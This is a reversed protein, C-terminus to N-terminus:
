NLVPYSTGAQFRYDTSLSPHASNFVVIAQNMADVLTSSSLDALTKKGCNIATSAMGVSAPNSDSVDALAFVGNGHPKEGGVGISGGGPLQGVNFCGYVETNYAAPVIFLGCIVGAYTHGAEIIFNGVNYCAAFTSRVEQKATNFSAEGTLGGANGTGNLSLIGHNGCAILYSVIDYSGQVFDGVSGVVGGIVQSQNELTSVTAYNTCRVMFGGAIYGAVGGMYVARRGSSVSGKVVCSKMTGGVCIGVLGGVNASGTGTNDVNGKIECEVTLDNIEGGPNLQAVFGVHRYLGQTIKLGKVVHNNGNIKGWFGLTQAETGDGKDKECGLPRMEHKGFDIDGTLNIVLGSTSIQKSSIQDAMWVWEAPTRINYTKGSMPTVPTTSTGDWPLIVEEARGASIVENNTWDSVTVEGVEIKEKGVRLNYTYSKGEGGINGLRATLAKGNVSLMLTLEDFGRSPLLVTYSSGVEGGGEAYPLWEKASGEVHTDRSKFKVGEVKSGAAFEPNIGEINVRLRFTIRQMAFNLPATSKTVDDMGTYMLDAVAIKIMSSQDQPVAQGFSMPQSVNYMAAPYYASFNLKNEGWILFKGDKAVWEGGDLRYVASEEYSGDANTAKVLIEDGENFIKLEEADSSLPMTRTAFPHGATATIQVANDPTSAVSQGTIENDCAITMGLLAVTASLMFLRKLRKM